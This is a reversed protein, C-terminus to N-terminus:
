SNWIFDEFKMEPFIPHEKEIEALREEDLEPLKQLMDNLELFLNTHIKVRKQAYDVMTGTKMIFAWDSSQLLLLERAMQNLIRRKTPEETGRHIHVMQDMVICCEMVHRYVWDNTGNVWVDSYGSEGWSSMEMKVSQIRPLIGIVQMPHIPAINSQDFHMKKFLFELFTPGEFWWHGFLEADYPSVIVPPQGEERLLHDAQLIRNRLFDEAHNGAAEVAWDPHYYDKFHTKGTIRHYKIGTNIRIGTPHVYDKIYDYDLDYGIDRYYERYRFDGPYGQTASWVQASSEPDRAFAFVGHGIEVPAHVGFRPRPVANAVAHSDVFFYRIGEDALFREVGPYYGCEALWIGRPDLGWVKKHMKKGIHIQAHVSSPESELLPLFGHTAPCTIVELSGDQVFEKFGLTVDKDLELFLKKNEEFHNLYYGSLYNLHPDYTTRKLEKNSLEILKETYKLFNNQLYKDQLMSLLTPTFTMTIKFQVSERKLTRFSKILPLYTESIAENLWNEELFPPNYGEHHVYPLHAHLVILQYGTKNFM